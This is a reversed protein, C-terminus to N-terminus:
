ELSCSRIRASEDSKLGLLCETSSDLTFPLTITTWDDSEFCFEQTAVCGGDFSRAVFITGTGQVEAKFTRGGANVYLGQSISGGRRVFGSGDSAGAEGDLTWYSHGDAFDVNKFVTSSHLGCDSVFNTPKVCILDCVSLYENNLIRINKVPAYDDMEGNTFPKGDFPNDCWTGVSHGGKLVCDYVFISDTEQKTQDPNTSGWPIFAIAKGGGNKASNIYSHEVKLDRISHDAEDDDLRWPAIKGRPDKYSSTIVIGDDNSDFFCREIRIHKAGQSFSFGDGSVCRVDHLKVNGIFIHDDTAFNTHYNNARIEDIDTFEIYSCDSLIIACIHIRDSCPHAYHTWDPNKSCPDAMRIIGPGTVKIHDVDNGQILPKNIFLCHTWPCNPIEFDHGYAPVYDYDRMDYSQWLVANKEIHLDVNSKMTLHTAVYRRGEVSEDGPLVVQGGGAKSCADIAKQIAKTDDTFGDGEAGYRTVDFKRDPLDFHYPNETFDMWNGIFFPKDVPKTEGASNRVVALFRSSLHTMKGGLRSNAMDTIEFSEASPAEYLLDLRSVPRSELDYPYEYICLTPYAKVDEASVTGCIRVNTDDATCSTVSGAYEVIADEREFRFQDIIWRGKKGDLATLSFSQVKGTCEPCDSINFYYAKMGSRPEISFEKSGSAKDTTWDLRVRSVKSRNAMVVFLTNRQDYWNDVSNGLRPSFMENRSGTLLPSSLSAGRRFKFELADSKWTVKGDESTFGYESGPMMFTLDMPKGFCLGDLLFTRGNDWPEETDCMLSIEVKDVKKLVKTSTFDFICTRWLGPIIQATGDAWSKGSWLRLRAYQHMEPGAQSIIAFEGVPTESLDVPEDFTKTVTRWTRAPIGKDPTVELVLSGQHSSVNLCSGNDNELKMGESPVFGDFSADEFGAMLVSQTLSIRNSYEQATEQAQLPLFCGIAAVTLISQIRTM